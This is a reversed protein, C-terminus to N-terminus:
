YKENNLVKVSKIGGPVRVPRINTLLLLLYDWLLKFAADSSHHIFPFLSAWNGGFNAEEWLPNPGEDVGNM